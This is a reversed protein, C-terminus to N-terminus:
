SLTPAGTNGAVKDVLTEGLETRTTRLHDTAEQMTFRAPITRERIAALRAALATRDPAEAPVLAAKLYDEISLGHEAARARLADITASDMNELTLSAM